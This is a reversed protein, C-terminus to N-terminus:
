LHGSIAYATQFLYIFSSDPSNRAGRHLETPRLFGHILLTKISYKIDRFYSCCFEFIEFFLTTILAGGGQLHAKKMKAKKYLNRFQFHMKARKKCSNEFQIHMKQRKKPRPFIRRAQGTSYIM